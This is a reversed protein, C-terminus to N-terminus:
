KLLESPIAFTSKFSNGTVETIFQGGLKKAITKLFDMGKHTGRGTEQSSPNECVLKYCRDEEYFKLVLPENKSVDIYKFANVFIEMFVILFISDTIGYEKFSINCSDFGIIEVPFFNDTIWQQLVPLDVKESFLANFEDEWQHQLTQWKKRYDRNTRLEESTTDSKIQHAKCLHRLYLNVIKDKNTKGLLQSIALALNNALSQQLSTEGTNDQKLQEVLKDDDASLISFATLAGGMMKVTKLHITPNNDHEANSRICQLTGLFNHAFMAVLNNIAKNKEEINQASDIAALHTEKLLRILSKVLSKTKNITSEFHEDEQQECSGDYEYNGPWLKDAAKQYLEEIKSFLKQFSEETSDLINEIENIGKGYDKIGKGTFLMKIKKSKASRVGSNVAKEYYDFARKDDQNVISDFARNNDQKVNSYFDGLLCFAEPFNQDASKKIWEFALKGNKDTGKGEHYCRATAYQSEASGQEAAKKFWEFAKEDNTEKTKEAWYFASFIKPDITTGDFSALQYEQCLKDKFEWGEEIECSYGEIKTSYYLGLAFQAQMDGQEALSQLEPLSLKTDHNSTMNM